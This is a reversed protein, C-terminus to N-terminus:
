IIMLNRCNRLKKSKDDLDTVLKIKEHLLLQNNHELSNVQQQLRQNETALKKATMRWPPRDSLYNRLIWGKRGDKLAIEAWGGEESILTVETGARLMAIIRRDFSTGTRMNAQLTTDSVYFTKAQIEVSLLFNSLVSAIVVLWFIKVRLLQRAFVSM